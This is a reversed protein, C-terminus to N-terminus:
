CSALEKHLRNIIRLAAEVSEAHNHAKNYEEDTTSNDQKMEYYEIIEHGLLVPENNIIVDLEIWIEDKPIYKYVYGHGGKLFDEDYTDRVEKGNVCYIKTNDYLTYILIKKISKDFFKKM